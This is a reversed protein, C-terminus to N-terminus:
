AIATPCGRDMYHALLKGTHKSMEVTRACSLMSSGDSILLVVSLGQAM